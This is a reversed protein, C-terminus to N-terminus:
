AITAINAGEIATQAACIGATNNATAIVAIVIGVCLLLTIITIIKLVKIHQLLDDTPPAKIARELYNEWKIADFGSVAQYDHCMIANKEEDVDLWLIGLCRYVSPKDPLMLRKSQKEHAKEGEVKRPKYFLAGSAIQGIRFHHGYPTNVKVLIKKGRSAKVRIFTFLFGNTLFQALGMFIILLILYTAMYILIDTNAM